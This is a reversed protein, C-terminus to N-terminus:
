KVRRKEAVVGAARRLRMNSHTMVAQGEPRGAEEVQFLAKEQPAEAQALHSVEAGGGVLV